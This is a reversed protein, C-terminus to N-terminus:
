RLFRTAVEDIMRDDIQNLNYFEELLSELQSVNAIRLTRVLWEIAKLDACKARKIKMALIYDLSQCYVSLHSLKTCLELKEGKSIDNKISSDFLEEHGESTFMKDIIDKPWYLVELQDIPEQRKKLYSLCTDNYLVIDGKVQKKMLRRNIKKIVRMLGEREIIM